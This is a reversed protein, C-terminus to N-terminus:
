AVQNSSTNSTHVNERREVAEEVKRTETKKKQSIGNSLPRCNTRRCDNKQKPPGKLVREAITRTQGTKTRGQAISREPPSTSAACKECTGPKRYGHTHKEAQYTDYPGHENKIKSKPRRKTPLKWEGGLHLSEDIKVLVNGGHLEEGGTKRVLGGKNVSGRNSGEMVDHYIDSYRL